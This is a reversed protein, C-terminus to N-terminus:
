LGSSSFTHILTWVGALRVHILLDTGSVSLRWTGNSNQEGGIYVNGSSDESMASWEYDRLGDKSKLFKGNKGTADPWNNIKELASRKDKMPM